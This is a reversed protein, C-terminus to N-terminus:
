TFNCIGEKLREACWKHDPLPTWNLYEELKPNDPEIEIQCGCARAELVAREGGGIISAPVYVKQTLNYFYALKQASVVPMVGIGNRLLATAIDNSEVENDKQYEGIILKVGPRGIFEHWRKWYALAGVGLLDIERKLNLDRYIETNVGFCLIFQTDLSFRRLEDLYNKLVWDNEYWIVDFRSAWSPIPASCGAVYLGKKGEVDKLFEAVVSSFSGIGFVFDYTKKPPTELHPNFYDVKFEKELEKLARALGDQWWSLDKQEHVFLLKM